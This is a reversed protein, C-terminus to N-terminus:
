QRTKRTKKVCKSSDSGTITSASIIIVGYGIKVNKGIIVDGGYIIISYDGIQAAEGILKGGPFGGSSYLVLPGLIVQRVTNRIKNIIKRWM